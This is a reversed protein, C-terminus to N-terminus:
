TLSLVGVTMANFIGVVTIFAILQGRMAKSVEGRLNGMEGRLEGRLEAMEGRLEGRLESMEARLDALDKKTAVETWPVTTMLTMLTEANEAGLAGQLAQHLRHRQGEGIAM